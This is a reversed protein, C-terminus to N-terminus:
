REKRSAKGKFWNRVISRDVLTVRLRDAGSVMAGQLIDQKPVRAANEGTGTAQGTRRNRYRRKEDRRKKRLTSKASKAFRMNKWKGYSVTKKKTRFQVWMPIEDEFELVTQEADEVVQEPHVVLEEMEKELM